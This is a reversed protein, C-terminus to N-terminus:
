SNKWWWSQELARFFLGMVGEKKPLKGESLARRSFGPKVISPVIRFRARKTKTHADDQNGEDHFTVMFPARWTIKQLISTSLFRKRRADFFRMSKELPEQFNLVTGCSIFRTLKLLAERKL